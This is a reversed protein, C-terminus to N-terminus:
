CEGFLLSEDIGCISEHAEKCTRCGSAVPMHYVRGTSGDSGILWLENDIELLTRISSGEFGLHDVDIVRAETEMAYRSVGYATMLMRRMESNQEKRIDSLTILEPTEIVKSSSRHGGLYYGKWADAYSIAPADERHLETGEVHVETARDCFIIIEKFAFWMSSVKALKLLLENTTISYEPFLDPNKDMLIKNYFPEICLNGTAYELPRFLKHIKCPKKLISKVTIDNDHDDSGIFKIVSETKDFFMLKNIIVQAAMPSPAFLIKSPAPMKVIKYIDEVLARCGDRDCPGTMLVSACKRMYM